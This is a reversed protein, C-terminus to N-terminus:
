IVFINFIKIIVNFFNLCNLITYINFLLTFLLFFLFKTFKALFCKYCLMINQLRFLLNTLFCVLHGRKLKFVPSASTHAPNPWSLKEFCRVLCTLDSSWLITLKSFTGLFAVLARRTSIAGSIIACGSRETVFRSSLASKGCWCSVQVRNRVVCWCHGCVNWIEGCVVLPFIWYNGMLNTAFYLEIIACVWVHGPAGRVCM